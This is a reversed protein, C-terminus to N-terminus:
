HNWFVWTEGEHEVTFVDGGLKLDRAYAAYDFYYRLKEPIAELEGTDDLFEEVWAVLSNGRGALADRAQEITGDTVSERYAALLTKDDDDLALWDWLEAEISSESIMGEPIGEHDQFMLEPDSEDAHLERCADLFADRDSYESLDLWKGTLDGSNYKAYTGVYVRAETDTTSM